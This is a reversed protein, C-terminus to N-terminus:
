FCPVDESTTVYNATSYISAAAAGVAYHREITKGSAVMSQTWHRFKDELGGPNQAQHDDPRGAQAEQLGWKCHAQMGKIQQLSTELQTGEVNLRQDMHTFLTRWKEVHDREVDLLMNAHKDNNSVKGFLEMHDHSSSKPDLHAYSFVEKILTRVRKRSRKLAALRGKVDQYYVELWHSAMTAAKRSLSASCTSDTGSSEGPHCYHCHCNFTGQKNCHEGAVQKLYFQNRNCGIPPIMDARADLCEFAEDLLSADTLREESQLHADMATTMREELKWKLGEVSGFQEHRHLADNNGNHLDVVESHDNDVKDTPHSEGLTRRQANIKPEQIYNQKSDEYATLVDPGVVAEIIAHVQKSNRVRNIIGPNLDALLGSPATVRSFKSVTEKKAVEKKQLLVENKLRKFQVPFRRARKQGRPLLLTGRLPISLDSFHMYDRRTDMHGFLNEDVTDKRSLCDDIVQLGTSLSCPPMESTLQHEAVGQRGFKIIKDLHMVFNEPELDQSFELTNGMEGLPLSAEYNVKTINKGRKSEEAVDMPLGLTLDVGLVPSSQEVTEHAINTDTASCAMGLEQRRSDDNSCVIPSDTCNSKKASELSTEDLGLSLFAAAGLLSLGDNSHEAIVEGTIKLSDSCEFLSLANVERSVINSNTQNRPLSPAISPTATTCSLDQVSKSLSTLPIAKLTNLINLTNSVATNPNLSEPLLLLEGEEQCQTAETNQSPSCHITKKRRKSTMNSDNNSGESDEDLKPCSQKIEKHALSYDSPADEINEKASSSNTKERGTLGLVVKLSSHKTPTSSRRFVKNPDLSSLPKIKQGDRKVGLCGDLRIKEQEEKNAQPGGNQASGLQSISRASANPHEKSAPSGPVKEGRRVRVTQVVM